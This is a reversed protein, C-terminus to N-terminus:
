YGTNNLKLQEKEYSLISRLVDQQHKCTANIRDLMDVLYAEDQAISDLLANQATASLYNEKAIAVITESIESARKQRYMKKAEALMYGSRAQYVSIRKLRELVEEPNDSCEIELYRQMESVEKEIKEYRTM